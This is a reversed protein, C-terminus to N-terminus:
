IIRQITVRVSAKTLSQLFNFCKYRITAVKDIKADRFTRWPFGTISIAFQQLPYGFGAQYCTRLATFEDPTITERAGAAHLRGQIHQQVLFEDVVLGGAIDDVVTEQSKPQFLQWLSTCPCCPFQKLWSDCSDCSYNNWSFSAECRFFPSM